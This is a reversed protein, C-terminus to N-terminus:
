RLPAAPSAPERRGLTNWGQDDNVMHGIWAPLRTGDAEWADFEELLAHGNGAVVFARANPVPPELLEDRPPGLKEDVLQLLANEFGEPTQGVFRRIVDDQRSSLLAIRDDPYKAALLDLVRSLDAQLEVACDLEGDCLQGVSRDLRWSSWWALRVLEPFDAGILPPGSDDVLYGRADPWATRALDHALLTGYGGASSGAVVLKGPAPLNAALWAVDKELNDKGLHRWREFYPYDVVNDGWHVDGTCYPVFVLTANGFPSGTVTRDLISGEVRGVDAEFDAQGYRGNGAAGGACTASSWCAGGGALFVLVDTSGEPGPNVALGTPSGDACTAGAVEVWTWELRPLDLPRAGGGGDCAALLPVLSLLGAPTRRM